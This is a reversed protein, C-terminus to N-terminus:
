TAPLADPRGQDGRELLQGAPPPDCLHDQGDVRVVRRGPGEVQAETVLGGAHDVRVRVGVAVVVADLPLAHTEAVADDLAETYATTTLPEPPTLVEATGVGLATCPSLDLGSRLPTVRVILKEPAVAGAEVQANRSM